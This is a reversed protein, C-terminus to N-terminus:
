APVEDEIGIRVEEAGAIAARYVPELDMAADYEQVLKMQAHTEPHGPVFLSCCDEYPQISTEYTGIREALRIIEQKDDGALPRLVPLTAVANIARLNALTQSAVQAVSDGTILALARHRRAVREALSLMARRYMIVRYAVPVKMTIHQQVQLFPVFILKSSYQYETLIRVLRRVNDKSAESTYPTSHFHVFIVQVGRKMIRYAAVPSDIGSSLLCVAKGGTGVPLGGPGPLRESYVLAHNDYIEIHVTLEPHSLDVRKGTADQIARGVRRNVEVSDLPFEKQSRRADVRFSAFAKNAVLGLAAETMADIDQPVRQAPSFNAIGFVKDLAALVAAFDASEAPHVLLRGRRREVERVGFRRTARLINNRLQMEFTARNGRKLAVEHYHVVITDYGAGPPPPQQTESMSETENKMM